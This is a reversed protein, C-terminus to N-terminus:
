ALTFGSCLICIMSAKFFFPCITAIVPSPTLSAGANFRASIPTDIPRLPVSTALSADSIIKISSEKEEITLAISSPLPIKLLM